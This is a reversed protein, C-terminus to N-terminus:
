SVNCQDLQIGHTKWEGVTSGGEDFFSIKSRKRADSLTSTVSRFVKEVDYLCVTDACPSESCSHNSGRKKFSSQYKKEFRVEMQEIRERVAKIHLARASM